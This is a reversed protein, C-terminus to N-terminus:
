AAKGESLETAALSRFQARIRLVAALATLSFGILLAAHPVAKPLGAANSVAGTQVFLKVITWSQVATYACCIALTVTILLELAAKPGGTLRTSFLDMSLHEGNYAVAIIGIFVGWISIYVMIEEAWFIPTGFFHRGVVNACNLAVDVLMLIGILKMPLTSLLLRLM